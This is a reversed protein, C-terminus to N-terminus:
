AFFADLPGAAFFFEVPLCSAGLLVLAPFVVVAAKFGILNAGRLRGLFTTVGATVLTRLRILPWRWLFTTTSLAAYLAM